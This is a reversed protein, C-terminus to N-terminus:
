NPLGGGKFNQFSNITKYLTGEYILVLLLSILAFLFYANVLPLMSQIKYKSSKYYM